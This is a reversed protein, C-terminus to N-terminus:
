CPIAQLRSLQLAVPGGKVPEVRLLLPPELVLAGDRESIDFIRQGVFCATLSKMAGPCIVQDHQLDVLSSQGLFGQLTMTLGGPTYIFRESADGFMPIAFVSPTECMNRLPSFPSPLTPTKLEAVDIGERLLRLDKLGTLACGVNSVKLRLWYVQWDLDHRGLYSVFSENTIEVELVARDGTYARPFNGAAVEAYVQERYVVVEARTLGKSQSTRGDFEDHHALCLWCLNSESNNSRDKDLHAIQGPKRGADREFGWCLCCVRGSKCLIATEVAPSLAKRAPRKKARGLGEDNQTSTGM